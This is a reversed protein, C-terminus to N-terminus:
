DSKWEGEKLGANAYYTIPKTYIIRKLIRSSNLWKKSGLKTEENLFKLAENLDSTRLAPGGKFMARINERVFWVGIPINFGPYIERLLVATAQRRKGYLHEVTALRSAYYCGGISPYSSRGCFGEHDGEIVVEGLSPNWTSGPWWAEMWEFSWKSPILLAIFLNDYHRRVYVEIDSIEPYHKVEKLLHESITSDVATISWRTPVIRRSSWLGLAGVSLAREIFTVPVNSSYLIIIADSAKLHRDNYVRDVVAPVSPNSVVRLNRLPARPGQPPEYESLTIRPRPPKELYIEVDVPKVSLTVEHVRHIFSNDLDTVKIRMTGTILSWRYDIVNELRLELWKEPFDYISTDGVEPPTSPGINVVPYGYRGVFVSPPSSGFIEKSSKVRRLKVLAMKNALLPCYSLGCFRRGRCLVCLHEDFGQTLM